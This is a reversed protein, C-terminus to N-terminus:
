QVVIKREIVTTKGSRSSAKIVVMTASSSVEINSSFKGDSEVLIPQNDVTLKADPDTEGFVLISSGKIVQGNVPSLIKIKPPSIFNIYQIGLYGLFILLIIGIGIIFTFKPNWTPKSSVDPKPHLNIKKPPYDRKLVAVSLRQDIELAESISKVFGLVTAFPPLFDWNEKELAEIFSSKIKTIEELDNYSYNKEKRGEKIIQSIKKM